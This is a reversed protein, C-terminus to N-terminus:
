WFPSVVLGDVHGLPVTGGGPASMYSATAQRPVQVLLNIM